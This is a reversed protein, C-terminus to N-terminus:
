NEKKSLFCAHSPSPSPYLSLSLSELLSWAWHLAWLMCRVVRLNHGSSFDSSLSLQSLGGPVETVSTKLIICEYGM